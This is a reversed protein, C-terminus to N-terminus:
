IYKRMQRVVVNEIQDHNDIFLERDVERTATSVSQNREAFPTLVIEIQVQKTIDEIHILPEKTIDPSIDNHNSTDVYTLNGLNSQLKIVSCFICPSNTLISGCEKIFTSFRVHLYESGNKFMM